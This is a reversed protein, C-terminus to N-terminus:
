AASREGASFVGHFAHGTNRLREGAARLVYENVSLGERAAAEFLASRFAQTVRGGNLSLAVIEDSHKAQNTSGLSM